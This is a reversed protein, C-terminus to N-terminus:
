SCYTQIGAIKEMDKSSCVIAVSYKARTLAVYFKSRSIPTLESTHDKLWEIIPRTPYIITRTFTLGKSDGFSFVQYMDNVTTRVSDRLQVPEFLELYAEVDKQNILFIGDHGTEPCRVPRTPPYDPFLLNSFVTIKPNCRYNLTLKTDDKDLQKCTNFFGIIESKRYQRNKTTVTTSYTAQRPDGVLFTSQISTFFLKLIELDWGALDQVEDIYITKYICALRTIVDNNTKANCRVVFKALKDSYIKGDSNFYHQEFSEEESFYIPRGRSYYKLASPENVLIMGKIDKEFLSNQFPHVGHKILFSFWTMIDINHPICKNIKIFSKKIEECNAQTFTTILVKEEKEELASKIIYSTKGSGAAAIIAKCNMNNRLLQM